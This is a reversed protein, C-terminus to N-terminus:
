FEEGYDKLIQQSTEAKFGQQKLFEKIHRTTTNSFMGKVVPKGEEIFAVDTAYSKLIRRKGEQRVKAKGYFQKRGDHLAQLVLEKDGM